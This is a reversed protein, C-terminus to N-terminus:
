TKKIVVLTRDDEPALGSTHAAVADFVSDVIQQASAQQHRRILDRVRRQGFMQGQRDRAEFIGDTAIVIIQQAELVTLVNEQYTVGPAVGLALGEGKLEQFRDRSPTYVMAPDHGARVWRVIGGQPDLSLFFLTMFRGSDLVDEVLYRNMDTVIQATSGPQTVRTRLFGRASTMLLAADVGHGSIDGVVVSLCTSCSPDHQLFDYYDGSIADSPINKGAVDLTGINLSGRPLLNKQVEAALRLAKASENEKRTIERRATEIEEIIQRHLGANLEKTDELRRRYAESRALKIRLYDNERELVEPKLTTSVSQESLFPPRHVAPEPLEVDGEPASSGLVLTVLTANHCISERGSVPPAIEGFSYFGMIPLRDRCERELAGIEEMTRTGLAQKRLNCSFALVAFPQWHALRARLARASTAIDDVLQDRIAESLQVTAGEPIAEAFTIAGEEAHYVIPGRLSFPQGDDTYVALPFETAPETHQGLYHHYFDLARRDGIRKVRRGEVQTIKERPGISKWSNAVFYAYDVPGGFLLLPLADELIERGFFQRISQGPDDLAAPCGGFIGCGEGLDQALAKIVDGGPHRILDPLTLCVKPTMPGGDNAMALAARAAARYGNSLRRGLGARIQVSDSVFAMLSIADDSFGGLSSFNGATTCGILQIQPFARQVLDLMVQHNFGGGAYLIGATPSQGGLQQQCTAIVQATTDATNLGEAQAISVRIM